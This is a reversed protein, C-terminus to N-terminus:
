YFYTVRGIIGSAYELAGFKYARQDTGGLINGYADFQWHVGPKYKLGPQMWWSDKFDYVGLFYAFFQDNMFPQNLYLTATNDVRDVKAANIALEHSDGERVTQFFQVSASLMQSTWSHPLLNFSKDLGLVYKFTGRRTYDLGDRMEYPQDPTYTFEGRFVSKISEIAWNFSAGLINISPHLSDNVIEYPSFDWGGMAGLAARVPTGYQYSRLTPFPFPYRPDNRQVVIGDQNYTHLYNLTIAVAGIKGLIRGGYTWDGRRNQEENVLFHPAMNYPAGRAPLQTWVQDGPNAVTEIALGDIHNNPIAYTARVSWLPIRINEFQEVSPNIFLRQSLDLPNFVDLLRLADSEGWVIQQKGARVWLNGYSIDAYVERAEAIGNDGAIGTRLGSGAGKYLPYANYSVVNKDIKDTFDGEFRFKGFMKFHESPKYNVESIMTNRQLNWYNFGEQLGDNNPNTSGTHFDAESRLYGSITLVEGPIIDIAVASGAAMVGFGVMVALFVLWRRM